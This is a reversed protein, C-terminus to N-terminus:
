PASEIGDYNEAELFFDVLLRVVFRFKLLCCITVRTAILDSLCTDSSNEIRILWDSVQALLQSFTLRAAYTRWKAVKRVYIASWDVM